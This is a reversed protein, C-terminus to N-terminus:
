FNGGGMNSKMAKMMGKFERLSDTLITFNQKLFDVQVKLTEIGVCLNDYEAQTLRKPTGNWELEAFGGGKDHFGNPSSERGSSDLYKQLEHESPMEMEARIKARDVKALSGGEVSRSKGNLAANGPNGTSRPISAAVRNKSGKPRGM